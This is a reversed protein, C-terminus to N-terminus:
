DMNRWSFCVRRTIGSCIQGRGQHGCHLVEAQPEAKALGAISITLAASAAILIKNNM